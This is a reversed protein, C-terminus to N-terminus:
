KIFIEMPTGLEGELTYEVDYTLGETTKIESINRSIITVDSLFNQEYLYIKSNLLEALEEDTFDKKTLETETYSEKLISIPIQRGFIDSSSESVSVESNAYDNKGIFLPIKLSFLCLYKEEETRGTPLFLESSYNETFTVKEKYIGKIIGMAHHTTVHGTSDSVVGNILMDGEYVYDGVIRMLMGDYVSTYTIEGEHAAVVNCPMRENVMDPKEVLETVEVVIRNGTRRIGAWSIGDVMLRLENECRHMNINRISTGRRIDLEDLASLIVSDSIRSNGQIDISIVVSSFYRVAFVALVAGIILGIRKRYRLLKSSLTEYETYEITVGCEKAFEALRSLDHRYIECFFTDNKCYQGFCYIRGSHIKNIFKYLQRGEAKIKLCGRLQNRM